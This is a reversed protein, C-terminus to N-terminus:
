LWKAKRFVAWLAVGLGAMLGLAAPYGLLWHLEPMHRFNMGYISGVLSPAYLVAAWASIKKTQDNQKISIDTQRQTVVALHTNLANDLISRYTDVREATRLAHDHVTRYLRLLEEDLEHERARARIQDLVDVLPRAAREVAIVERHLEYIRQAITSRADAAFVEDEIQTIDEELERTVPAYTDVLEDLVIYLAADPGLRVVDPDDDLRARVTDMDPAADFTLAILATKTQFIHIDSFVVQEEADNYRVARAVCALGDDYREVKSRQDRELADEIALVHIGFVDQLRRLDDETPAHVHLWVFSKGRPLKVAIHDVDDIDSAHKGGVYVAGNVSSM